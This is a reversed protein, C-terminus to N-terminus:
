HRSALSAKRFNHMIRPMRTARGLWSICSSTNSELTQLPKKGFSTRALNNCSWVFYAFYANGSGGFAFIKAAQRKVVHNSTLSTMIQWAAAPLTRNNAHDLLAIISWQIVRLMDPVFLEVSLGNKKRSAERPTFFVLICTYFCTIRWFQSLM